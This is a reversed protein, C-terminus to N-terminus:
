LITNNHFIKILDSKYSVNMKQKLRLVYTSITNISLNLELAIQKRSYGKSILEFCNKERQSLLSYSSKIHGLKKINGLDFGDTFVYLDHKDIQDLIEKCRVNLDLVYHKFLEACRVDFKNNNIDQTIWWLELYNEYRKLLTIGNWYNYKLYLEMSYHTPRDPWAICYSEKDSILDEKFFVQTGKIYKYYDQILLDDSCSYFFRGDLYIRLFGLNRVNLIGQLVLLDRILIESLKYSLKLIEASEMNLVYLINCAKLVYCMSKYKTILSTMLFIIVLKM